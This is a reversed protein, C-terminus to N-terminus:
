FVYISQHNPTVYVTKFIPNLKHLPGCSWKADREREVIGGKEVNKVGNSIPPHSPWLMFTPRMRGHALVLQSIKWPQSRPM